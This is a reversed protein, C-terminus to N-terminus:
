IELTSTAETSPSEDDEYDDKDNSRSINFEVNHFNQYIPATFHSPFIDYTTAFSFTTMM